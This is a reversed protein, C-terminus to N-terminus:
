LWSLLFVVDFSPIWNRRLETVIGAIIRGELVRRERVASGTARSARASLEDVKTAMGEV